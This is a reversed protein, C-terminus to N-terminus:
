PMHVWVTGWFGMKGGNPEPLVTISLTKSSVHSVTSCTYSQAYQKSLYQIKLVKCHLFCYLHLTTLEVMGRVREVKVIIQRYYYYLRIENV